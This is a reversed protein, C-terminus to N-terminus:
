EIPEIEHYDYNWRFSSRVEPLRLRHLLVQKLQDKLHISFFIKLIRIGDKEQDKVLKRTSATNANSVEIKHQVGATKVAFEVEPQTFGLFDGIEQWGEVTGLDPLGIVLFQKATFGQEMWQKIGLDYM